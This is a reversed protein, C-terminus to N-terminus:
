FDIIDIKDKYIIIALDDSLHIDKLEKSSIYRKVLWGNKNIFETTTGSVVAIMNDYVELRKVNGELAYLKEKSKDIKCIRM